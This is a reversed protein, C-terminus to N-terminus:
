DDEGIYDAFTVDVTEVRVLRVAALRVVTPDFLVLNVGDKTMASTYRIGDYRHERAWTAFYQTPRYDIVDDTHRLPRSYERDLRNFLECSELLSRLYGEQIEFPTSLYMGKPLNLVRIDRVITGSAVSVLSGTHPRVEGVATREDEAGYFYSVGAENARGPNTVLNPPPAGMQDIAVPDYRYDAQRYKFMARFIPTGTPIATAARKIDEEFWWFSDVAAAIDDETPELGPAIEQHQEPHKLEDTMEHWRDLLSTHLWNHDTWLDNVDPADLIDEDHLDSIFIDNLLHSPEDRRVLRESFVDWQEQILDALPQGYDLVDADNPVNVGANVPAYIETFRAFLPELETAEIVFRRRSQCYQCTGLWGNQRIYDKLFRDNFCAECCRV